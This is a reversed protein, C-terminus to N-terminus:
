SAKSLPITSGVLAVLDAPVRTHPQDPPPGFVESRWRAWQPWRAEDTGYKDRHKLWYELLKPWDPAGADHNVEAAGQSAPRDLWGQGALWKAPYRTFKPDQGKRELAYRRAGEIIADPEAGAAVAAEFAERARGLEIQLPYAEIFEAFFDRACKDIQKNGEEERGKGEGEWHAPINECMCACADYPAPISSAPERQNIHQHKGWSPIHGFLEGDVEYQRIFGHCELASLVERFDVDDFPLVDLKLVRPQWRFRGERDAVTWLGAFALRLPLGCAVEAEFLQEHRFFDPKITRIRAM